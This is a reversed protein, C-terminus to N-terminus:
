KQKEEGECYDIKNSEILREASDKNIVMDKEDDVRM